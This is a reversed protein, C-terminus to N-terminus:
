FDMLFDVWCGLLSFDFFHVEYQCPWQIRARPWTINHVFNLLFPALIGELVVALDVDWSPDIKSGVQSGKPLTKPDM